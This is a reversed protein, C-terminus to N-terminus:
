LSKVEVVERSFNCTDVKYIKEDIKQIQVCGKKEDGSMLGVGIIIIILSVLPFWNDILSLITLSQKPKINEESNM